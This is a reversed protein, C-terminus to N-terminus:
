RRLDKEFFRVCQKQADSLDRYPAIDYFGLSRYLNQAGNMFGLTDLRMHSYGIDRADSLITQVLTKAMGVGRFEPRIYLTRMECVTDSLKALAICGGVRDDSLALYLRGDPPVHEGPFKKRVDDYSRGGMFETLDLEPYHNPIEALMWTVYEQSLAIIHQIHDDTEAAIIKLM